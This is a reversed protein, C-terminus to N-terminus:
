VISGFVHARLKNLYQSLYNTYFYILSWSVNVLMHNRKTLHPPLTVHMVNAHQSMRAGTEFKM